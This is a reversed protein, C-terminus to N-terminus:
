ILLQNSNAISQVAGLLGMVRNLDGSSSGVAIGNSGLPNYYSQSSYAQPMRYQHMQTPKYEYLQPQRYQYNHGGGFVFQFPNFNSASTTGFGGNGTTYFMNGNGGAMAISMNQLEAAM